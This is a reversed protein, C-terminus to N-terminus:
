LKNNGSFFGQYLFFSVLGLGLRLFGRFGVWGNVVRFLGLCLVVRFVLFKLRVCGYSVRLLVWVAFFRQVRFFGIGQGVTFSGLCGQACFWELCQLVQAKCLWLQGQAIGLGCFFRQVRSFGIGQGVTFSGLCGQACFWELGQFFRYGICGYCVWLLVRVAFIRFGRFSQVRLLRLCGQVVRPAFETQVRLFDLGQVFTVFGLFYWLRLFGRFGLFGQFRLFQLFCKFGETFFLELGEFVQVRCFRLQGQSIGQGCFVELLQFVM